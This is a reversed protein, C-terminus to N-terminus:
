SATRRGTQRCRRAHPVRSARSVETAWSNPVQIVPTSTQGTTHSGYDITMAAIRRGIGPSISLTLRGMGGYFRLDRRAAPAVIMTYATSAETRAVSQALSDVCFTNLSVGERQAERSLKRHLSRPVRLVFRGSYDETAPRPPPM